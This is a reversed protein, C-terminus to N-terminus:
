LPPKKLGIVILAEHKPAPTYALGSGLTIPSVEEPPNETSFEIHAASFAHRLFKVQNNEPGPIAVGFFMGNSTWPRLYVHWKRIGSSNNVAAVGDNGIIKLAFYESEPDGPAFALDIEGGGKALEATLIKMDEPTITRWRVLQKLREQEVRANEAGENAATIKAETDLKYKEFQKDAAGAERKHSILSGATTIGVATAVIAAVILSIILWSDWWAGNHGLFLTSAAVNANNITETM